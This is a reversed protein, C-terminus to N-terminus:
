GQNAQPGGAMQGGVQVSAEEKAWCQAPYSESAGFDRDRAHECGGARDAMALFAPNVHIPVMRLSVEWARLTRAALSTEPGEAKAPVECLLFSTFM